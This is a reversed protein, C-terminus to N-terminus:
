KYNQIIKLAHDKKEKKKINVDHFVNTFTIHSHTLQLLRPVSIL